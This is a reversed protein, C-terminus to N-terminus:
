WCREADCGGLWVFVVVGVIVAVSVAGFCGCCCCCVDCVLLLPPSLLPLLLLLLRLVLLLLPLMM